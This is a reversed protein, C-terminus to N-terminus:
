GAVWRLAENLRIPLWGLKPIKLVVRGDIQSAIVPPDDVNNNDGRTIFVRAGGGGTVETIRHFISRGSASRYRIVDGVQLSNIDVERTIVIDGVAYSPEMSVGSVLAPQVGLLGTNFWIMGVGLAAALMWMPSIGQHGEENEGEAARAGFYSDRVILMALVPGLTGVFATVTWQLSPLVPSFWEFAYLVFRYAFAPLPGGISALFTAMVSESLGPLLTTGTIRFARETEDLLGFQAPPVSVAAFLLAIAAFGLIPSVRGWAHLLYARAMELGLLLTSFYVANKAVNLSQGALPSHGFGYLMGAIVLLSIQFAGALLALVVLSRRLPPTEPLRRWLVHGLGALGGWILPQVIYFNLDPGLRGPMMWYVLWYAVALYGFV